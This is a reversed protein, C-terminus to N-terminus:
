SLYTEQNLISGKGNAKKESVKGQKPDILEYWTQHSHGQKLTVPTVFM